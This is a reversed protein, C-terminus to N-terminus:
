GVAFHKLQGRAVASVTYSFDIDYSTGAAFGNPVTVDISAEYLGTIAGVQTTTGSLVQGGPGRVRYTPAASPATPTGATDTTLVRIKFGTTGLTVYGVFSGTQM